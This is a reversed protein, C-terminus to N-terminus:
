PPTNKRTSKGCLGELYFRKIEAKRACQEEYRSIYEYPYKFNYVREIRGPACLKTVAGAGVALVTRTEEMIFINYPSEFGPKAFGVNELNQRTGKQRYLYFPRYGYAILKGHARSVAPQLGPLEEFASELGRLDSSRKVTLTHLTINEPSLALVEDISRDLAAGGDGPLGAILDMNIWRFGAERAQIFAEKVRAATHDRGIAALVTDDMTQPNVCIRNVANERLTKLKEPTIADPRGAEVTFETLCSLDFAGRITRLLLNLEGAELVAPTGGGIYVDRLKLQLDAAIQATLLIEDKLLRVYDPILKACRHVEHSVFSCYLCRSPCFPISVYLSFDRPLNDALIPAQIDAVSLALETKDPLALYDNQLRQSAGERTLGCEMWGRLLRVPRVGTLIGWPPRIGTSKVLIGFLLVALVREREDVPAGGPLCASDSYFSGGLRLSTFLRLKGGDDSVSAVATKEAGKDSAEVAIKAGPFFLRVVCEMEYVFSHGSVVLIM